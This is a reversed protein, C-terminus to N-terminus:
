VVKRNAVDVLFKKIANFHVDYDGYKSLEMQMKKKCEAQLEKNNIFRFIQNAADQANKPEYYLCSDELVETNFDFKTAVIPLNFYMAEVTSASFVELLTPLFRVSM